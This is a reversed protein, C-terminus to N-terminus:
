ESGEVMIRAVRRGMRIAYNVGRDEPFIQAMSSLYAGAVPTKLPPVLKGYGPVVVPQAYRARSLRRSLVRAESFTSFLRGAGELFVDTIVEDSAGFLPDAPDLYRSIYVIHAGYSEVPLLNTHEIVAVFPFGPDAVSTWYFPSLSRDLELMLCLNAQYKISRWVARTSAPLAPMLDAFASPSLTCLVEDFEYVGRSSSGPPLSSQEYRNGPFSGSISRSENGPTSNGRRSTSVTFGGSNRPEVFEVSESLRLDVNADSSALHQVLKDIIRGFGGRPYGLCEGGAGVKQSSGRLKLKNALWVASIRDADDGFKARLLPGWVANYVARGTHRRVWSAATEDELSSWDRIMRASLIHLGMLLRRAPSVPPFRLLDLPGSFPHSVGHRYFANKPPIWALSEGLGLEGLLRVADVDSTFLHHYFREVPDRGALTPLMRCLGGAESEKEFITVRRGGAALDLAATLGTLGGGIIAVTKM